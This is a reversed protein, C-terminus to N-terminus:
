WEMAAEVNEILEDLTFPKSVYPRGVSTLFMMASESLTDGTLFLVRETLAPLEERLRSFFERGDMVPMKLDLVIVNPTGSQQLHALAERGNRTVTVEHGADTFADAMLGLVNKEDDVLLISGKRSSREAVRDHAPAEIVPSPERLSAPLWIDFVAGGEPHNSATISGGYQNVIRFCISLGLGTGSGVERTTFFPDFVRRLNLEEIGPGSDRVQLHVMPESEGTVELPAGEGAMETSVIIRRLSRDTALMAQRANSVLNFVIQQIQFPDLVSPPLDDSLDTEIRIDDLSVQYRLLALAQEVIENLSVESGPVEEGRAAKLVNEVLRKARLAEDNMTGVMQRTEDDLDQRLLLGTNGVIVSLPNSLEHNIGAMLEALGALKEAQILQIRTEENAILSEQYRAILDNKRLALAMNNGFVQMLKLDIDTYGIEPEIMGVGLVGWVRGDIILPVHLAHAYEREPETMLQLHESSFPSTLLLPEASAAVQGTIGSGIEIRDAPRRSEEGAFGALVLDGRGSVTLYLSASEADMTNRVRDLLANYAERSTGGATMEESIGYLVEIISLRQTIRERTIEAEILTVRLERLQKHKQIVYLCFLLVLVTLGDVYIELEAPSFVTEVPSFLGPAHNLIFVILLCMLVLTLLLWLEWDLRDVDELTGPQDKLSPALLQDLQRGIDDVAPIRPPNM